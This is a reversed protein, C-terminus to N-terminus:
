VAERRYEKLLKVVMEIPLANLTNGGRGVTTVATFLADYLSEETAEVAAQFFENLDADAIAEQITSPQTTAFALSYDGSSTAMVSGTRALGFLSRKSLRSLQRDSLPADTATIIMCSGDPESSDFFYSDNAGILEGIPVGLM